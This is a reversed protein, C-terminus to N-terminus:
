GFLNPTAEKEPHMGAHVSINSFYKLPANMQCFIVDVQKRDAYLLVDCIQKNNGAIGVIVHLLLTALWVYYM